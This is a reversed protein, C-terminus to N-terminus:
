KPVLRFFGSVPSLHDLSQVFMKHSVHFLQICMLMNRCTIDTYSAHFLMTISVAWWAIIDMDKLAGEIVVSLYRCLETAWGLLASNERAAKELLERRHRDFTSDLTASGTTPSSQSASTSQEHTVLQCHSEEQAEKWYDRMANEIIKLAKDHWNKANPDGAAQQQEQEEAGGWAIKIYDLKYYPHLVTL